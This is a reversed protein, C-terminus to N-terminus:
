LLYMYIISLCVKGMDYSVKRLENLDSKNGILIKYVDNPANKEIEIMWDNIKKFSELDTLDYVIMIGKAGKYYSSTIGKFREQGATDWINVKIKKGNVDMTKIKFDVGITVIHQDSYEDDVYRLLLSSKGVGSSGIILYKLIFDYQNQTQDM